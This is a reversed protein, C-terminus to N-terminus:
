AYVAAWVAVAAIAWRQARQWSLFGEVLRLTM